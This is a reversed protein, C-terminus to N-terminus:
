QISNFYAAGRINSHELAPPLPPTQAPDPLPENELHHKLISEVRALSYAGYHLARAAAAELRIVTHKEGLRVLGLCCRYGV